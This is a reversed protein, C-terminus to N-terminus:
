RSDQYILYPVEGFFWEWCKKGWIMREVHLCPMAFNQSLFLNVRMLSANMFNRSNVKLLEAILATNLYIHPPVVREYPSPCGSDANPIIMSQAHTVPNRLLNQNSIGWGEISDSVQCDPRNRSRFSLSSFVILLFSFSIGYYSFRCLVFIAWPLRLYGHVIVLFAWRLFHSRGYSGLWHRIFCDCVSCPCPCYGYRTVLSVTWRIHALNLNLDTLTSVLFTLKLM